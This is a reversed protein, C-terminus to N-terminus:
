QNLLRYIVVAAQARTSKGNPNFKDEGVGIIIGNAAALAVGSRLETHIDSADAFVKLAENVDDIENYQLAFILARSAMAAMEARTISAYPDFQTASRGNVIGSQVAAAIYPKFWDRENVDNFSEAAGDDELSFTRVILKAFEARTISANPDFVGGGRGEFIGKAAAVEIQRGAWAKVEETDYFSVKNEVVTYSSFSNRKAKFSEDEPDYYGGFFELGSDGIRALTMLEADLGDTTPIPISVVVPKKFKNTTNISTFNFTYVDSAVPLQTVTEAATKAQKNITLTSDEGLEELDFELSIGDVEIAIAQIGAVKAKEILNKSLTVESSDENINGLSLTAVVKAPTSNPISESLKDNIKKANEKITNFHATMQTENIVPKAVGNTVTVTSSVDLRAVEKIAQQAAKKLQQAAANPSSTPPINTLLDNLKNGLNELVKTVVAPAPPVIVPAPPPVSIPPSPPAPPPTAGGVAATLTITDAFVIKGFVKATVTATHVSGAAASNSLVFKGNTFTIVSSGKVEWQLLSAPLVKGFLSLVPTLEALATKTNLETQTRIYASALIQKMEGGPDLVNEINSYANFLDTGSVGLDDIVSKLNPRTSLAENIKSKVLAKIVAADLELNPFLELLELSTMSALEAQAKSEAESILEYIDLLSVANIGGSLGGLKVLEDFTARLAPNEISAIIDAEATEYSFFLAKFLDFVREQTLNPYDLSNAIKADILLWVDNIITEETSAQITGIIANVANREEPTMVNRISHIRDMLGAPLVTEAHVPMSVNLGGFGGFMLSFALLLVLVKRKM